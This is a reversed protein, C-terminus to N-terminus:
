EKMGASNSSTFIENPTPLCTSVEEPSTSLQYVKAKKDVDVVELCKADHLENIVAYTPNKSRPNDKRNLLDRGVTFKVTGYVNQLYHWYNAAAESVGGGIQESVPKNMVRYATVYDDENAILQGNQDVKRQFQHLLTSSAICSLLMPFMRRAEVKEDPISEALKEAYPIVVAYPKLIRQIAHQRDIAERCDSSNRRATYALIRRTQERTEDTHILICRNRDEEFISGLTTSEVFAIPGEQEITRTVIGDPGKEPMLKVLRGSSLMERLARTAEARDDNEMRSREGAVVFRNKLSGPKLHFLAQPTMQQAVLKTEAPFLKAVGEITYSKGSATSGQVIIAMTRELLRSVGALYITAITMEEGVVHVAAADKIAQILPKGHTLIHKAQDRIHEPMKAMYDVNASPEPEASGKIRENVISLLEADITTRDVNTLQVIKKAYDDRHKASEIDIKNSFILEGDSQAIVTVKGNGSSKTSLTYDM